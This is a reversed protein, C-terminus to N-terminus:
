LNLYTEQLGAFESAAEKSDLIPEKESVHLVMSTASSLGIELSLPWSQNDTEAM